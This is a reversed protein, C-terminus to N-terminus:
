STPPHRRCPARCVAKAAHSKESLAKASHPAVLHPLPKSRHDLIRPRLRLFFHIRIPTSPSSSRRCDALMWWTRPKRFSSISSFSKLGSNALAFHGEGVLAEGYAYLLPLLVVKVVVHPANRNLIPIQGLKHLSELNGTAHFSLGTRFPWLILRFYWELGSFSPLGLLARAMEGGPIDTIADDAELHFREAHRLGSFPQTFRLDMSREHASCTSCSQM